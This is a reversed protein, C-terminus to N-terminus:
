LCGETHTKEKNQSYFINYIRQKQNNQQKRKKRGELQLM